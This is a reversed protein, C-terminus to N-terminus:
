RAQASPIRNELFYCETFAIGKVELLESEKLDGLPNGHGLIELM